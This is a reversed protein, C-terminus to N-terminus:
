PFIVSVKESIKKRCIPCNKNDSTENCVLCICIHNCPILVVSSPNELCICCIPSFQQNVSSGLRTLKKNMGTMSTSMATVSEVLDGLKKATVYQQEVLESVLKTNEPALRLSTEGTYEQGCATCKVEDCLIVHSNNNGRPSDGVSKVCHVINGM